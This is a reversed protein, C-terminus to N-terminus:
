LRMSSSMSAFENFIQELSTQCVGYEDICFAIRHAELFQFVESLSSANPLRFRSTRDHRELTIAGQFETQLLDSFAAASDELLWWEVFSRAANWGGEEVDKYLMRGEASASREPADLRACIMDFSEVVMRGPLFQTILASEVLRSEICGLHVVLEFGRGFRAKIHQNSGFCRLQGNVMIGIRSCLAEAEEMNHTTLMVCSQHRLTSIGRIANWMLRRAAPDVGTTPEDLLVLPASGIMSIAGM